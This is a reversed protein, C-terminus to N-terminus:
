IFHKSRIVKIPACGTQCCHFLFESCLLVLATCVSLYILSGYSSEMEQLFLTKEDKYDGSNPPLMDLVSNANKFACCPYENM